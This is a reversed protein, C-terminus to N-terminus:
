PEIIWLDKKDGSELKLWSFLFLNGEMGKKKEEDGHRGDGAM